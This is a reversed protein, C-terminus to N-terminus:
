RLSIPRCSSPVFGHAGLPRLRARSLTGALATEVATAGAGLASVLIVQAPGAWVLVTSAVVWWVSFGFDHALAALGVYTGILVYAM